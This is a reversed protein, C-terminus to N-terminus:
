KESSTQLENIIYDKFQAYQRVGDIIGKLIIKARFLGKEKGLIKIAVTLNKIVFKIIWIRSKEYYRGTIFNNRYFYYFMKLRNSDTEYFINLAKANKRKHIVVSSGVMYADAFYTTLRTTYETDDGWIFYDRCPLGCKRVAKMNILLSVFTACRINLLGNKLFKYWYQYGNASPKNNVVPVNMFEQATGFVSSALFSVKEGQQLLFDKAAILNELCDAQPITDDDMLWIWGHETERALKLGEYFGGSGGTNTEKKIYCLRNDSLIGKEDLYEKTGDTSANDILIVKGVSITQHFIANLCEELLIKRNYTVVIAIVSDKKM